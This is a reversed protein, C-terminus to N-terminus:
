RDEIVGERIVQTEPDFMCGHGCSKRCVAVNPSELVMYHECSTSQSYTTDEMEISGEQGTVIPTSTPSDKLNREYALYSDRAAKQEEDM